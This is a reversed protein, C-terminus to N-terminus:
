VSSWLVDAGHQHVAIMASAIAHHERGDSAGVRLTYVCGAELEENSTVRLEPAEEL